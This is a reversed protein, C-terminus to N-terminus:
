EANRVCRVSYGNSASSPIIEITGCASGFQCAHYITSGPTFSWLYTQVLLYENRDLESNYMGAPELGYGSANTGPNVWNETSMLDSANDYHAMLDVFDDEDPIHWGDPCIGQGTVVARSSRSPPTTHTAAYYNYLYGYTSVPTGYTMPAPTVATGDAYKTTRSNEAMWCNCGVQVTAYEIGDGDANTKVTGGCPPYNVTITQTVQIQDGCDDTLTWTITYPSQEAIFRHDTPLYPTATSDVVVTNGTMNNTWNFATNILTDCMGYKLTVVIPEPETYTVNGSTLISPRVTINQAITDANGCLDTVVWRRHIIRLTNDTGTTDTDYWSITCADSASCNDTVDATAVEGTVTPNASIAGLVRCITTDAPATFVPKENDVVTFSNTATVTCHHDDEVTVTATYTHGSEFSANAVTTSAANANTADSGWAYTYEPIGNTVAVSVPYTSQTPCLAAEDTPVTIAATMEAPEHLTFTVEVVTNLSDVIKVTYNNASLNTYTSDSVVDAAPDTGFQFSYKGNNKKGGTVTVTAKGDNSTGNASNCSIGVTDVTAILEPYIILKGDTVNFTVGTFNTNTNNFQSAMLGMPYTGPTTGSAVASGSFTFDHDVDYLADETTATYGSVSHNSGDADYEAVNGTITVIVGTKPNITLDANTYEIEYNNTRVASGNNVIAASPVIVGTYTGADTKSGALTISALADGSQLGTVTVYTDFGSTYTGAPGQAAGNYTYTQAKAAITLTAKTITFTGPVYTVNYNGQVADGAPTITYTGVTDGPVRSLTYSLVSEDDGNQLGTVTATLTPDAAGYVKTKADATVTATAPTITLTDNVYTVNYNGQVAAGAPTIVYKGVNNGDARSLTYSLVSETDGNKLGTVTATLTPDAEGYVKTKADAKVTVAAPTITLTDKVYTVNYNGQVAAGSPTITYEGINEGTARVIDYAIVSSADGNQLGTITVTLTPDADGYVKTQADAKVTAAAPTIKFTGTVYTVNYNGQVANGSPTITYDGVNEGAARTVTYTLVSETDGNQLGTVTATFSAPDDAGYVKTADNATVTATARTITFTGTVYTVKYNGQVTDGAPTITYDGVAEGAARSVTYTIVSAEDSRKLGTVTATLTPDTEGYVKSKADATVTATARTITLTDCVYKVYYNGQEALGAPTIVYKGVDEGAARNVTYAILSQPDGTNLGTLTATLTEDADGYVKTQANATVTVTDKVITLTGTEYVVNYNGQVAEGSPTITYTGVTQGAERTTTVTLVTPDDSPLLGTPTWTLEPDDDGYVKTKDDAKVTVTTRSITLVLISDVPNYNTCTARVTVTYTGADSYTPATADFTSGGDTSYTVTPTASGYAATATSAATLSTTGDYTLERQTPLTITLADSPTVELEGDVLTVEYADDKVNVGGYHLIRLYSEDNKLKAASSGVETQSGTYVVSSTEIYDGPALGDTEDITYSCVTNAELPMADYPKSHSSVTIKLPKKTIILKSTDVMSVTYNGSVDTSGGHMITIDSVSMQASGRDIEPSTITIDTVEDGTPLDLNNYQTVVASTVHHPNGDYQMKQCVAHVKVPRKAVTLTVTDATFTYNGSTLGSVNAAVPYLGVNAFQDVDTYTLAELGTIVSETEGHQLGSVTYSFDNSNGYYRTAADGDHNNIVTHITVIAPTVTLTGTDLTVAYDDAQTGSNFSHSFKNKYDGVATRSGAADHQYAYTAGEGEVFGMGLVDVSDLVIDTGDYDRNFSASRFTIERPNITILGTDLQVNGYITDTPLIAYAFSNPTIGAHTRAADVSPTIVVTDGTTLEFRYGDGAISPMTLGGFKVEYSKATVENGDYYQTTSASVIKVEKTTGMIQLYGITYDPAYNATVDNGGAEALLTTGDFSGPYSGMATGSASYEIGSVTHGSVLNSVTYAESGTITHLLGDYQVMTNVGRIYLPRRAVRLTDEMMTIDYNQDKYNPLIKNITITNPVTDATTLVTNAEVAPSGVEGSLFSGVVTVGPRSISQGDYTGSYGQSILTIPIPNVTLTSNIMIVTDFSRTVDETGRFAKVSDIVNDVTRADLMEIDVNHNMWVEVHYQPGLGYITDVVGGGMDQVSYASFTFAANASYSSSTATGYSAYTTSTGDYIKDLTKATVILMGNEIVTLSGYVKTTDYNDKNVTGWNITFENPISGGESISATFTYSIQAEDTSAFGDGTVTPATGGNTLPEMTSSWFAEKSASTITVSRKKIVVNGGNLSIRYQCTVDQEGRMVKCDTINNTYIGADTPNTLSVTAVLRDGNALDYGMGSTVAVEEADGVKVYYKNAAVAVGDYMKEESHARVVYQTANEHLDFTETEVCGKADTVSVTYPTTAHSLLGNVEYREIVDAITRSGSMPGGWELTYPPQGGRISVQFMGDVSGYCGSSTTDVSFVIPVATDVTVSDQLRCTVANLTDTLTLYYKGPDRDSLSSTTGIVENNENRWEYKYNGFGDHATGSVAGSSEGVCAQATSDMTVSMTTPILIHYTYQTPCGDEMKNLVVTNSTNYQVGNVEWVKPEGCTTDFVEKLATFECQLNIERYEEGKTVKLVPSGCKKLKVEPLNNMDLVVDDGTGNNSVSWTTNNHNAYVKFNHSVGNMDEGGLIFVPTASVYAASLTDMGKLRPFMSDAYIWNEEGLVTKLNNGTLNITQDKTAMDTSASTSRMSMDTQEDCALSSINNVTCYGAVLGKLSSSATVQGVNYCNAIGAETYGAVGGVHDCPDTGTIIGSNYCNALQDSNYGAIGGLYQTSGTVVGINFCFTLSKSNEGVIGGTYSRGTVSASNHCYSVYGTNQGCVAGVKDTGVVTGNVVHCNTIKGVNYGCVAGVVSYSSVTMNPNVFNLDYVTGANYGFFGCTDSNASKLKTVTHGNGNFDGLFPHEPTGIRGAWNEVTFDPDFDLQFFVGEGGPAITVKSMSSGVPGFIKYESDYGFSEGSNIYNTLNQLQEHNTIHCPLEKSIGVVFNLKKSYNGKTATLVAKGPRNAKFIDGDIRFTSGDDKTWTVGNSITPSVPYGDIGPITYANVTDALVVPMAAVYAPDTTSIASVRPYGNSTATFASLGLNTNIMQTTSKGVAGNSATVDNGTSGEGKYDPSMVTDYYCNLLNGSEYYGAVNGVSEEGWVQGVSVSNSTSRSYGSFNSQHGVIGGVFKIGHVQGANMNNYTTGQNKGIIGGVYQEGEVEGLNICSSLAYLNQRYAIGLIGGVSNKGKVAGSNVSAYITQDSTSQEGLQGVIGGVAVNGEVSGTNKCFKLTHYNKYGVIGGVGNIGKVSASNECYTMQVGGISGGIGGVSNGEGTVSGGRVYIYDMTGSYNYIYSAVAGAVVSYGSVETTDVYFYKMTFSINKQYPYSVVGAVYSGSASIKCKRVNVNQISTGECYAVVGAVQFVGEITSNEVTIHNVKTTYMYGLVGGICSGISSHAGTTKINSNRITISDISSASSNGCLAAVYYSSVNATVSDLVLNKITANSIYGFLGTGHQNKLKYNRITFHGGDFTGKFLSTSTGIPTWTQNELNINAVLRFLAENGCAPVNIYGEGNVSHYTSDVPNYYFITGANIRTRFTDLEAKNKIVFADMKVQLPVVKYRVDGVAAYLESISPHVVDASCGSVALNSTNSSWVVGYDACGGMTFDTNATLVTESNALFVPASAAKSVPFDKIGKLIPYMKLSDYVFANGLDDKTLSCMEVTNKATAYSNTATCMQNDYYCHTSASINSVAYLTGTGTVQGANYCNDANHTSNYGILVGAVKTATNGKICGVNYSSSVPAYIAVGAMYCEGSLTLASIMGSNMCEHVSGYLVPPEGDNCGNAMIGAINCTREGTTLNGYNACRYIHGFRGSIGGIYYGSKLNGANVCSDIVTASNAYGVIGGMHTFSQVNSINVYNTCLKITDRGTTGGVIGGVYGSMNLSVTGVNSMSGRASCNIINGNVLCACICGADVPTSTSVSISVTDLNLNKVVGKEVYGFLGAVRGSTQKLKSITHNKGDFVGKFPVSPGNGIPTWNAETLSFDATVEFTTGEAKAPVATGKYTFTSGSNVGARLTQLDAENDVTLVGSPASVGPVLNIRWYCSDGEYAALTIKGKTRDTPMRLIYDTNVTGSLLNSDKYVGEVKWEINWRSRVLVTDTVCDVNDTGKFFLPLALVKSITLDHLGKIRPYVGDTLEWKTADTMMNNGLMESTNKEVGTGKSYYTVRTKDFYCGGVAATKGNMRGLSYRETSASNNFAYVMNTTTRLDGANFCYANASNSSLAYVVGSGNSSVKGANFSYTVKGGHSIGDATYNTGDNIHTVDGLNYSHDIIPAGGAIGGLTGSGSVTGKNFCYSVTDAGSGSIGGANADYEQNYLNGNNSCNTITVKGTTSPKRQAFIGGMHSLAYVYYNRLNGYNHCNDIYVRPAGALRLIGAVGGNVSSNMTVNNRNTCNRIYCTGGNESTEHILGGKIASSGEAHCNDVLGGCMSYILAARVQSAVGSVTLNKITDNETYRFLGATNTNCTWGKVKHGDGDYSGKFPNNADWGISNWNSSPMTIDATQKFWIGEALAPIMFHKYFFATTSNVGDRLHTLDTITDVPFPNTKEGLYPAKDFQMPYVRSYGDKSVKLEVYSQGDISLHTADALAALGIKEDTSWTVGTGGLTISSVESLDSLTKDNPLYLPVLSLLAPVNSTVDFGTIYPYYNSQATYHESPVWGDSTMESTTKPSAGITQPALEPLSILQQDYANNTYETTTNKDEGILGGTYVYKGRVVSASYCKGVKCVVASTNLLGILGGLQNGSASIAASTYCINIEVGASGQGLLGGVNKVGSVTGSFFCKEIKTGLAMGVLGGTNEGGGIYSNVVGLNKINAHNATYGFLGAYPETQSVFAGSILHFNGDFTGDFNHGDIGIPTWPDLGTGDGDCSAVDGTNLTIDAVLRFFSGEGMPNVSVTGPGGTDKFLSDATDFFFTGGANIREALSTLQAKTGIPFPNAESGDITQGVLSAPAAIVLAFLAVMIKKMFMVYVTNLKKM